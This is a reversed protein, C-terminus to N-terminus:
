KIKDKPKSPDVTDMKSEGGKGKGKDNNRVVLVVGVIIVGVIILEM